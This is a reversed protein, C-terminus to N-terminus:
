SLNLDSDEVDFGERPDIASAYGFFKKSLKILPTDPGVANGKIEPSSVRFNDTFDSRMNGKSVVVEMDHLSEPLVKFIGENLESLGEFSVAPSEVSFFEPFHFPPEKFV